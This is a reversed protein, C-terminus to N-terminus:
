NIRDCLETLVNVTPIHPAFVRQTRNVIICDVGAATGLEYDAEDDGIALTSQAVVNNDTMIRELHAPGKGFGPASGFVGGFASRLERPVKRSVFHDLEHQPVSSSICPTRGHQVLHSLLATADDFVRADALLKYNLTTLRDSMVKFDQEALDAGCAKGVIAFIERRPKGSNARYIGAARETTMNAGTNALYTATVQAFSQLKVAMSDFLTGDWDLVFVARSSLTPFAARGAIGSGPAAASM